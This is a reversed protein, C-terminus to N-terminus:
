SNNELKIQEYSDVGALDAMEEELEGVRKEMGRSAFTKRKRDLTELDKVTSRDLTDMDFGSDGSVHTKVTGTEPTQQMTDVAPTDVAVTLPEM